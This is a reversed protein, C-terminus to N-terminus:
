QHFCRVVLYYGFRALIPAPWGFRRLLVAYVVQWAIGELNGAVEMPTSGFVGWKRLLVAKELPEILAALLAFTWFIAAEGRGKLLRGVLWAPVLIPALRFACESIISAHLYHLLSWPPRVNVFSTDYGNRRDVAALHAGWYFRSLLLDTAGYVVGTALSWLAIKAWRRREGMRPTRAVRTWPLVAVGAAGIALYLATLPWGLGAAQQKMPTPWPHLHFVGAIALAPLAVLLLFLALERRAATWTSDMDIDGRGRCLKAM